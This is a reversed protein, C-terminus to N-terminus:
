GGEESKDVTGEEPNGNAAHAIIDEMELSLTLSKPDILKVYSDIAKIADNIHVKKKVDNNM